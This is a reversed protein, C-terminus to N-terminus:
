SVSKDTMFFIYESTSCRDKKIISHAYSVDSFDTSILSKVAYYIIDINLIDRLYYFVKNLAAEHKEHSNMMFESLIVVALFIDSRIELSLYLLSEIAQQYHKKDIDSLSNDALNKNINNIFDLRTKDNMLTSKSVCDKMDFHKLMNMIYETQTLCIRKKIQHIEINLYHKVHKLDSMKFQSKLKEKM